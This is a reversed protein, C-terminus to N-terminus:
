LARQHLKAMARTVPGANGVPSRNEDLQVAAPGAGAAGRGAAADRFPKGSGAAATSKVHKFFAEIKPADKKPAPKAAAKTPVPAVARPLVPRRGAAALRGFEEQVLRVWADCEGVLECDFTSRWESRAQVETKNMYVVLGDLPNTTHVARAIDKVMRKLGAVKLSTGIVLLMTPRKAIDAGLCEAIVDGQPHPENYLVIDPRLVGGKLRRQGREERQAARETCAGCAPAQGAKLAAHQEYAVPTRCVTCTLRGLTGHLGVVPAGAAGKGVTTELGAQEELGDINQTYWRLVRKEGVLDRLFEHTATPKAADCMEKLEAIFKYFLPRTAEAHFFSADFFDKGKAVTKDGFQLGLREYLGGASRFDQRLTLLRWGGHRGYPSALRCRSARM